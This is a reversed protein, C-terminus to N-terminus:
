INFLQFSIKINVLVAHRIDSILTPMEVCSFVFCLSIKAIDHTEKFLTIGTYYM